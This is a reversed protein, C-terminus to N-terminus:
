ACAPFTIRFWAGTRPHSLAEIRGDHSEVIKRTIFLGLGTGEAEGKTTFFPDFIMNVREAPIGPGSDRFDIVILRKGDAQDMLLDASITLRGPTGQMADLANHILNIFIQSIQLPNGRIKLDESVQLDVTLGTKIRSHMLALAERIPDKLSLLCLNEIGKKGFGKLNNMIETLRQSSEEISTLRKKLNNRIDFMDEVLAPENQREELQQLQNLHLAALGVSLVIGQLPNNLEHAVAAVLTGLTALRDAHVLQNTREQVMEELHEAYERLKLGQEKITLHTRVRALLEERHFPKSIFDVGGLELGKVKSPIDQLASLFIVPIEKKAEDAKLLRCTEYGDMEPMMIDLLILDPIRTMRGMAEQGNEAELVQYGERMLITKMMKLNTVEDDVVMILTDNIKSM